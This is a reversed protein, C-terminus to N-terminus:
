SRTTARRRRSSSLTDGENLGIARKGTARLNSFESLAVRKVTGQATCMFLYKHNFDALQILATLGESPMLTLLNVV